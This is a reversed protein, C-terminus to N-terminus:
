ALFRVFHWEVGFRVHLSRIGVDDTQVEFQNM